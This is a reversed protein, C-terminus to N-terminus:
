KLISAAIKEALKDAERQIEEKAINTERDIVDIEKALKEAVEQKAVQISTQKRSLAVERNSEIIQYGELRMRRIESEYTAKKDAVQELIEGAPGKSGGKKSERTDIIKYIPRFFTRNLIWIMLLIMGIHILLSGDPILQVNGALALVTM